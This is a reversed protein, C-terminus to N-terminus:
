SQSKSCTMSSGRCFSPSPTLGMQNNHTDLSIIDSFTSQSTPFVSCVSSAAVPRSAISFPERSKVGMPNKTGGTPNSVEPLRHLAHRLMAMIEDNGVTSVTPLCKPMRYCMRLLMEPSRTLHFVWTLLGISSWATKKESKRTGLFSWITRILGLSALFLFAIGPPKSKRVALYAVTYKLLNLSVILIVKTIIKSFLRPLMWSLM